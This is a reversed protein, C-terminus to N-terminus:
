EKELPKKCNSWIAETKGPVYVQAILDSNRSM